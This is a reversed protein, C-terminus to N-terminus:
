LGGIIKKEAQDLQVGFNGGGVLKDRDGIIEAIKREPNKEGIEYLAGRVSQLSSALKTVEINVKEMENEPLPLHPIIRTTYSDIVSLDLDKYYFNKHGEYAKLMRFIYENMQMLRSKWVRWSQQTASVLDSYLLKLAVGSVLGFGKIDDPTVSPVDAILHICNDLRQLFENLANSYQFAAELKKVDVNEDGQINWIAHPEVRVEKESDPAANLMVTIAFMNFRLADSADSMLRSNQEFLPILDKLMSTGFVNGAVKDNPILIVPIFDLFTPKGVYKMKQPDLRANYLGETLYCQGDVMEWTQKWITKDNDMFSVFHVKELIDPDEPDPVPFVEQVPKFLIKIGRAPDHHIRLAVTGGILQDRGAELLKEDLRNASFISHLIDEKGRARNDAEVQGNSKVYDAKAMVDPPDVQLPPAETDPANEFLWAARTRVLKRALNLPMISPKYTLKSPPTWYQGELDYFNYYYNTNQIRALAEENLFTLEMPPYVSNIINQLVYDPIQETPPIRDRHTDKRSM